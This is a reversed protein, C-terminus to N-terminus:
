NKLISIHLKIVLIETIIFNRQEKAEKSIFRKKSSLNTM